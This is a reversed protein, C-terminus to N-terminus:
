TLASSMANVLAIVVVIEIFEKGSVVVAKYIIQVAMLIDGTFIYGIIGIGLICPLIVDKKLTIIIIIIIIIIIYVYHIIGLNVM